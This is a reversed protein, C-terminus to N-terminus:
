RVAREINQGTREVDRGVGRVTNCGSTALLGFAATLLLLIIKILNTKMPNTEIQNAPENLRGPLSNRDPNGPTQLDQTGGNDHYGTRRTRVM